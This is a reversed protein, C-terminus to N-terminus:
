PAARVWELFVSVANVAYPHVDLTEPANVKLGGHFFSGEDDLRGGVDFVVTPKLGPAVGYHRAAPLTVVGAWLGFGGETAQPRAPDYGPSHWGAAAEHLLPAPRAAATFHLDFRGEALGVQEVHATWLDFGESAPDAQEAPATSPLNAWRLKRAFLATRGIQERTSEPLPLQQLGATFFPLSGQGERAARLVSRLFVSSRHEDLNTYLGTSGVYGLRLDLSAPSLVVGGVWDWTLTFREGPTTGAPLLPAGLAYASNVAFLMYPATFRTVQLPHVGYGNVSVAYFVGAVRGQHALGLRNTMLDVPAYALPNRGCGGGVATPVQAVSFLNDVRIAAVTAKGGEEGALRGVTPLLLDNALQTVGYPAANTELARAVMAGSPTGEYPDVSCQIGFFLGEFWNPDSQALALPLALALAIM